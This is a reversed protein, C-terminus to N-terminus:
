SWRRKQISQVTLFIFVATVSLYYIIGTVDLMGNVFNSFHSQINFIEMFKQIAGEFLAQDLNYLILLVAEGLIGITFALLGNKLVAYIIVCAAILLVTIPFYRARTPM